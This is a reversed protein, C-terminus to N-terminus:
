NDEEDDEESREVIKYKIEVNYRDEVIKVMTKLLTIAHEETFVNEM